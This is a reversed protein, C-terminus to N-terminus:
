QEVAIVRDYRGAKLDVTPIILYRYGATSWDLGIREDCSQSLFLQWGEGRRESDTFLHHCYESEPEDFWLMVSQSFPGHRTWTAGFLQQIAGQGDVPHLMQEAESVAFAAEVAASRDYGLEVLAPEIANTDLTPCAMGTLWIQAFVQDEYDAGESTSVGPDDADRMVIRTGEPPSSWFYGAHEDQFILMAGSQPAEPVGELGILDTMEIEYLFTLPVDARRPWDVGTPLRVEGGGGQRSRTPESAEFLYFGDAMAGVAVALVESALGQERLGEEFLRRQAALPAGAIALEFRDKGTIM